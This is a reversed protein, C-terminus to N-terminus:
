SLRLKRFAVLGLGAGLLLVSSPEPALTVVVSSFGADTDSGNQQSELTLVASTSTATFYYVEPTWTTNNGLAFLQSGGAISIGAGPITTSGCCSFGSRIDYDVQYATGVTLGSITQTLTVPAGPGANLEAWNSGAPDGVGLNPTGPQCLSSDNGSAVWGPIATSANSNTTCGAFTGNTVLNAAPLAVGVAIFVALLNLKQKM